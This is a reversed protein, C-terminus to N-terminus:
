AEKKKTFTSYDRQQQAKQADLQSLALLQLQQLEYMSTEREDRDKRGEALTESVRHLALMHQAILSWGQSFLDSAALVVAKTVFEEPSVTKADIQGSNVLRKFYEMAKRQFHVTQGKTIVHLQPPLPAQGKYPDIGSAKFTDLGMSLYPEIPKATVPAIWASFAQRIHDFGGFADFM